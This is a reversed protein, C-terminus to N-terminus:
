KNEGNFFIGEREKKKDLWTMYRRKEIVWVEKTSEEEFTANSHYYWDRMRSIREGNKLFIINDKWYLIFEYPVVVHNDEGYLLYYGRETM